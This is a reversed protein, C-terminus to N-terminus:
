PALEGPESAVAFPYKFIEPSGLDVIKYSMGTVNINTAESLVQTFHSDSSPYNHSWGTGSFKGRATYRLRAVVIETAPPENQEVYRYGFRQGFVLITGFLLTVAVASAARSRM